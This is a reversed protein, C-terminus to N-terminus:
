LLNSQVEFCNQLKPLYIAVTATFILSAVCCLLEGLVAYESLSSNCVIYEAQDPWLHNLPVFTEKDRDQDHLVHHRHSFHFPIAEPLLLVIVLGM